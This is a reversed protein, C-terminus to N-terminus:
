KQVDDQILRFYGGIGAIDDAKAGIGSGGQMEDLRQAEGPIVAAQAAGPQIVVFKRLHMAM